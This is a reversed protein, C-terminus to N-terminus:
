AQAGDARDGRRQARALAEDLTERGFAPEDGFQPPDGREDAYVDGQVISPPVVTGLDSTPRGREDLLGPWTRRLWAREEPMLGSWRRAIVAAVERHQGVRVAFRIASPLEFPSWTRARGARKLRRDLWALVETTASADGIDALLMAGIEQIQASPMHLAEVCASTAAAGTRQALAILAAHRLHGKETEWLHQLVTAGDPGDSYGLGGILLERDYGRAFQLGQLIDEDSYRQTM